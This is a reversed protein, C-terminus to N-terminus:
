VATPPSQLRISTLARSLAALRRELALGHVLDDGGSRGSDVLRGIREVHEEVEQDLFGPRDARDVGVVGLLVHVQGQDLGPARDAGVAQRQRDLPRQAAPM